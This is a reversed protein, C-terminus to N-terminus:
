CGPSARTCPRGAGDCCAPRLGGGVAPRPRVRVPRARRRGPPDGRPHHAARARQRAAVLAALQEREFERGLVAAIDIVESLAPLRELRQTLLGQLTAPVAGSGRRGRDLKLLEEVFLPVGDAARPRPGARGDRARGGPSLPGLQSASSARGRRTSSAATPRWACSPGSACTRPSGGSCSSQPRIPGISIRSSSCSRIGRPIPSWSCSSRACRRRAAPSRRAARDTRARAWGAPGVAAARGRRSRAGRQRRRTRAARSRRVRARARPRDPVAVHQPHHPSCQWVQAGGLPETLARIVLSKGIGAEGRVHVIAASAKAPAGCRARSAHSSPTAAWWRGCRAGGPSTSGAWRARSRRVRYVGIPRAVAKRARARGAARPRRRLRRGARADRRQDGGDGTDRDGELRAAVHPTAGVAARAGPAGRGHGVRGRDRPRQAPRHAGAAGRGPLREALVMAEVIALGAHVARQADDEHVRPYGFYAVLGDGAWQAIWGDYREVVEACAHQYARLLERYDEPDLADALPTSGVMDCFMVTLHRRQAGGTPDATVLPRGCGGCFRMGSPSELGCQECTPSM